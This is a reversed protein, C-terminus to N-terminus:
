KARASAPWFSWRRHPIKVFKPPADLEEQAMRCLRALEAERAAAAEATDAPLAQVRVIEKLFARAMTNAVVIRIFKELLTEPDVFKAEASKRSM